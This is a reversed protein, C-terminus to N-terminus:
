ILRNEGVFVAQRELRRGDQDLTSVSRGACCALNAEGKAHEEGVGGRLTDGPGVRTVLPM